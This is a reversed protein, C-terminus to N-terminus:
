GRRSAILKELAPVVQYLDGVIGYDAAQFIPADKDTNVAAIIKSDKIGAIHQLQGSIGVALYLEPKVNIGTLGIHYEEPLWGLDSSLPRSCGMTGGMAKALSEIITLDEKKKVGRGASVIIKAARLDVTAAEKRHVGVVKSKVGVDEVQVETVSGGSGAAPPYSGVKVTAMCPLDAAVRTQVKGAYEGREGSLSKGDSSLKAVDSLCARSLKVALRAAIERGNKTSGVLLVVPDASKMALHLSNAVVETSLGQQPGKIVLKKGLSATGTRENAVDVIVATGSLQRAVESAASLTENAVAESDSYVWVEPSM